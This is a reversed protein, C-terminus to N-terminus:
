GEPNLFSETAKKMYSMDFMDAFSKVGSTSGCYRDYAERCLEYGAGSGSGFSAFMSDLESASLTAFTVDELPESNDLAYIACLEMVENVKSTDHEKMSSVATLADAYSMTMHSNRYDACKVLNNIFKQSYNPASQLWEGRAIWVGRLSGDTNLCDVFVVSLDMDSTIRYLESAPLYAIDINQADRTIKSVTAEPGESFFVYNSVGQLSNTYGTLCLSIGDTSMQVGMNVYKNEKGCGTLLFMMMVALLLVLFPSRELSGDASGYASNCISRRSAVHNSVVQVQSKVAKVPTSNKVHKIVQKAAKM